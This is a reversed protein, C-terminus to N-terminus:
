FNLMLNLFTNFKENEQINAQLKWLASMHLYPMSSIVADKGDLFNM